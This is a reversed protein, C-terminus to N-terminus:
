ASCLRGRGGDGVTRGHEHEGMDLIQVVAEALEEHTDDTAAARATFNLRLCQGAQNASLHRERLERL